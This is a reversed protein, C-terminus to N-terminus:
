WDRGTWDPKPEPYDAPRTPVTYGLAQYYEKLSYYASAIARELRTVLTNAETLEKARGMDALARAQKDPDQGVYCRLRGGPKPTGHVPCAQDRRHNTYMKPKAHSGAGRWYVTGNCTGLQTLTNVHCQANTLQQRAALLPGTALTALRDM